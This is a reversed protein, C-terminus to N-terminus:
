PTPYQLSNKTALQLNPFLRQIRSVEEANIQIEIGMTHQSSVVDVAQQLRDNTVGDGKLYECKEQLLMISKLGEATCDAM